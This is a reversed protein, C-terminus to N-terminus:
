KLTESDIQTVNKKKKKVGSEVINWNFSNYRPLWNLPPSVPTGPSFWWGAALWQCVNDCLATDLVGQGLPIRVWM